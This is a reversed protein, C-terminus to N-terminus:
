GKGAGQPVLLLVHREAALGPVQVARCRQLRWGQPLASLEQHPFRGKLAVVRTDPGALGRASALLAPLGAYARALVTDFPVPPHLTEVRAQLASVNSLGLRRTAHAVFRVKKAVSDILTFHREPAVVALPLGPFGAGTGVDAIHTGALDPWASLSDLLHARIMAERGTIASLSYTRNWVALEDLLLLLAAARERDLPVGLKGADEVLRQAEDSV